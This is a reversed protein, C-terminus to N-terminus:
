SKLNYRLQISLYPYFSYNRMRSEIKIVEDDITTTELFGEYTLNLKPSGMYLCGLDIGLGIRNKMIARKFGIGLYPKLRNWRIGLDVVGFDEALMEIGGIKLKDKTYFTGAYRQVAAYEIGTSLHFVKRRFPYYDLFLGINLSALDPEAEIFTGDEAKISLPRSFSFFSGGGRVAIPLHPWPVAQLEAGVGRTNLNFHLATGKRLSDEKGHVCFCSLMLFLLFLIEGKKFVPLRVKYRHVSSVESINSEIFVISRLIFTERCTFVPRSKLM